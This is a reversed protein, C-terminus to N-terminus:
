KLDKTNRINIDSLLYGLKIQKIKNKLNNSDYGADALLINNNNLLNKNYKVFDDLQNNLILSDNNNGSYINCNLPIGIEDTILSIKTVKHKPMQPNYGTKDIGLKNLILTTDTLLINTKTKNIFKKSYKNVIDYYNLKIIDHKQLKVFFKYITNWHIKNNTLKPIQRFPLGTSLIELISKLLVRLKYKRNPHDFLNKFKINSNIYKIINNILHHKKKQYKHM